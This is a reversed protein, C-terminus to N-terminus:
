HQSLYQAVFTSCHIYKWKHTDDSLFLLVKIFDTLVNIKLNNSKMRLTFNM